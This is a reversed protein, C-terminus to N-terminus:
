NRNMNLSIAKEGNRVYEIEVASGFTALVGVFSLAGCDIAIGAFILAVAGVFAIFGIVM